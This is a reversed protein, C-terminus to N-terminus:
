DLAEIIKSLKNKISKLKRNSKNREVRLRKNEKQIERNEFRIADFADHAQLTHTDFPNKGETIDVITRSLESKTHKLSFELNRIKTHLEEIENKLEEIYNDKRDTM